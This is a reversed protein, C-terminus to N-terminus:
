RWEGEEDKETDVGQGGGQLNEDVNDGADLCTTLLM